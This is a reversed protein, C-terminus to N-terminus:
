CVVENGLGVAPHCGSDHRRYRISRLTQVAFPAYHCDEIAFCGQGESRWRTRLGLRTPPRGCCTRCMQGSASSTQHTEGTERMRSSLVSKVYLSACSHHAHVGAVATGRSARVPGCAHGRDAQARCSSPQLAAFKDSQM